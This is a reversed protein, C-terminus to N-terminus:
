GTMRKLPALATGGHQCSGVVKPIQKAEVARRLTSLGRACARGFRMDYIHSADLASLVVEGSEFWLTLEIPDM